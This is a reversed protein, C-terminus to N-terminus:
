VASSVKDWHAAFVNDVFKRASESLSFTLHVPVRLNEPSLSLQSRLEVSIQTSYALAAIEL